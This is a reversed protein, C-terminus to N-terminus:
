EIIARLLSQSIIRASMYIEAMLKEGVHMENAMFMNFDDYSYLIGLLSLDGVSSIDKGLAKGPEIPKNSIGITKANKGVCADIAIVFADKDVEMLRENINMAHATYDMTGIVKVGKLEPCNKLMSGTLPGLSDWLCRNTGICFININKKNNNDKIRQKVNQALINVINPKQISIYKDRKLM